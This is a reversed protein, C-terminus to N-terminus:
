AIGTAINATFASVLVETGDVYLGCRGFPNSYTRGSLAVQDNVYAVVASKDVIVKFRLAEGTKISLPRDLEPMHDVYWNRYGGVKGFELRQGALNFRLFYGTDGEEDMRLLLGATGIGNAFSLSGELLYSEPMAKSM